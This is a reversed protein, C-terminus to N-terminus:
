SWMVKFQEVRRIGAYGTVTPFGNAPRVDPFRELMVSLAEELEIKALAEGLCRHAGGGFVPHWKQQARTIDFRTPDPYWSEDRLASMTVLTCPRNAPLIHGGIEIDATTFRPLAGVAPEYRLCELVASQLLGDNERLQQWQERHQLLLSLQIVLASRTTDSGGIILVMLQAIAEEESLGGDEQISSLYLGLFDDRPEARRSAMIQEVYARLEVAARELEPVDKALWSGTLVPSFRFVLRTFKPIDERPLGLITAITRAPLLVAFNELVEMGSQGAVSDLIENVCSRIGPRLTEMMKFAFARSMPARRRRHADGNSTLMGYRFFDWIAGSTVGRLAALETEVQRTSAHGYLMSIDDARLVLYSGLESLLFPIENRYHRYIGHSDRDLDAISLTPIENDRLLEPYMM